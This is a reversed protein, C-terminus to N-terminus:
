PLKGVGEVIQQVARIMVSVGFLMPIDIEPFQVAPAIYGAMEMEADVESPLGMRMVETGIKLYRDGLARERSGPFEYDTTAQTALTRDYLHITQTRLLLPNLARHKDGNSLERLARLARRPPDTRDYPQAIDIVAWQGGPIKRFHERKNAFRDRSDEIPFQVQNGLSETRSVGLYESCLAYFLYDLASRLNHVVDGLIVGVRLRWDEPITAVYFVHKGSQPDLKGSVQVLDSEPATGSQVPRVIANLTDRHESAREIKARCEALDVTM